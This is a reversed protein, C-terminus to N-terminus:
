KNESAMLAESHIPAMGSQSRIDDGKRPRGRSQPALRRGTLVAVDTEFAKDGLVWGKLAANRLLNREQAALPQALLDRFRAEREFPTNGLNWYAVHAALWGAEASGLHHAASSLALSDAGDPAPWAGDVLRLCALGHAAPDVVTSGFRAEWLTGSRRHRLNHARVFHRSVAQMMLGLAAAEGPTALLLVETPPLAYAHIAVQHAAAADRVHRLYDARDDNDKFVVQGNHGRQILLHLHGAVALRPLRAM